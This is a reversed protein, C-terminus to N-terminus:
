TRTTPATPLQTVIKVERQAALGLKVNRKEPAAWVRALAPVHAGAPRM